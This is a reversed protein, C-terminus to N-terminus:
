NKHSTRQDANEVDGAGLLRLLTYILRDILLEGLEIPFASNSAVSPPGFPNPASQPVRYLVSFRAMLGGVREPTGQRAKGRLRTINLSKLKGFYSCHASACLVISWGYFRDPFGNLDEPGSLIPKNRNCKTKIWIRSSPM